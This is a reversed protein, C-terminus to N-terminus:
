SRIRGSCILSIRPTPTSFRLIAFGEIFSENDILWSQALLLERSDAAKLLSAFRGQLIATRTVITIAVEGEREVIRQHGNMLLSLIDTDLLIM